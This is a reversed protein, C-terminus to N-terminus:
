KTTPGSIAPMSGSTLHLRLTMELARSTRPSSPTATAGSVPQSTALNPTRGTTMVPATSVAANVASVPVTLLGQSNPAIKPTASLTASPKMPCIGDTVRTWLQNMSRRPTTIPKTFEPAPKPPRIKEGSIASSIRSKPQRWPRYTRARIM